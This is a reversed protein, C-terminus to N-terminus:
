IHVKWHYRQSSILSLQDLHIGSSLSSYVKGSDWIDGQNNALNDATSSIIIQYATQEVGNQNSELQWSLQPLYDIGIPNTQYEAKLQVVKLSSSKVDAAYQVSFLFWMALTVSVCKLIKM